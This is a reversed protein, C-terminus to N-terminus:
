GYSNIEVDRQFQKLCEILRLRLYLNNKVRILCKERLNFVFTQLFLNFM